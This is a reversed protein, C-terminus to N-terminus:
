ICTWSKNNKINSICASTVNYDKAIEYGNKGVNLKYKIEIVQEKTLKNYGNSDGSRSTKPFTIDKSLYKWTNKLRIDNILRRSINLSLAIDKCSDGNVLRQIIKIVDEESVKSHVSNEGICNRIPFDLDKTLYNWQQHNYIREITSKPISVIKGIEKLALNTNLLYDLALLIDKEKYKNWPHDEGIFKGKRSKSIKNKTEQSMNSKDAKQEINYGFNRTYSKYFDMWYQERSNLEELNSVKEIIDFKFNVEGYKNWSNQLYTNTHIQKNLNRKHSKWRTYIDISQGIYVNGNVINEIKYIGSIKNM